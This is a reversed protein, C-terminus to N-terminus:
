ALLLKWDNAGIHTTSRLIWCSSVIQLAVMEAVRECVICIYVDKKM